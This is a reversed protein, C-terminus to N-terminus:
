KEMAKDKILDTKNQILVLPIEGCETEVKQKWKEVASFSDRDTTSFVIICGQAGRYYRKTVSDFEEQGATDWIMMKATKKISEIFLEKLQFAAGVTKKYKEEYEGTTFRKM